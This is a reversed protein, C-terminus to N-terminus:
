TIVKELTLGQSKHITCAYCISVPFQERACDISQKSKWQSTMPAIVVTKKEDDLYPGKYSDFQCVLAAPPDDPPNTGEEYLIDVIQGVAGNVLGQETWLNFRLMIKAGKALYLVSSLGGAENLTGQAAATCNHRAPIRAVPVPQHTEKDKLKELRDMNYDKVELLTPYLRIADKFSQREDPKVSTTFRKVLTRYDLKSVNGSCINQLIKQFEINNQRKVQTLTMSADINKYLLKGDIYSASQQNDSYVPSDGVPALQQVDGFFYIFVGGYELDQRDLAEQLRKQINNLMNCGVM